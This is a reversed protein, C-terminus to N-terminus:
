DAHKKIKWCKQPSTFILGPAGEPDAGDPVAPIEVGHDRDTSTIKLQVKQGKKIHVTSPPFNM